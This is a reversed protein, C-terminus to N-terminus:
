HAGSSPPRHCATHCPTSAARVPFSAYFADLDFPEEEPPLPETHTTLLLTYAAAVSKFMAEGHAVAEPPGRQRDPHHQLALKKYAARVEAHTCTASVHLVRRADEATRPHM